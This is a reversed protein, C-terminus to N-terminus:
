RLAASAAARRAVAEALTALVAPPVAARPLVLEVVLLEGPELRVQRVEVLLHQNAKPLDPLVLYTAGLQRLDQPDPESM